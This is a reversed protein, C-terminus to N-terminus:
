SLMVYRRNGSYSIYSLWERGESMIISDYNVSYGLDYYALNPSSLKPESKIGVRQKFYYTGRSPLGSSPRPAEAVTTKTSTVTIKDHNTTVYQLQINYEGREEKHQAISISAKYTGDMQKTANYWVLDDQGNSSTWVGLKVQKINANQPVNSVKIDFSGLSSNHNSVDLKGTFIARNTLKGVEVYRRKGSYSMYSIWQHGEAELVKDYNVTDGVGYHALAPSDLKPESKVGSYKTFRYTGKPALSNSESMTESAVLPASVDKFHIYGTVENKHIVRRHYAHNGNYNYEEIEVQDGYVNSVWAVHGAWLAGYQNSDMWAVAGVAPIKDVRYGSRRAIHGWTNANGYGYPLEFGNVSSLRFAAFSVCEKVYMNWKDVSKWIVGNKWVLPYNDGIATSSHIASRFPSVYTKEVVPSTVVDNSEELSVLAADEQVEEEAIMKSDELNSLNEHFDDEMKDNASPVDGDIIEGSYLETSLTTDAMVPSTGLITGLVVSALGVSVKRLSFRPLNDSKIFM